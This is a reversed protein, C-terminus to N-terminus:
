KAAVCARVWESKLLADITSSSPSGPEFDADCADRAMVQDGLKGDCLFLPKNIRQWGDRCEMDTESGRRGCVHTRQAASDSTATAMVRGEYLQGSAVYSWVGCVRHGQQVLVYRSCEEPASGDSRSSWIGSFPAPSKAAPAAETAGTKCASLEMFAILLACRVLVGETSRDMRKM